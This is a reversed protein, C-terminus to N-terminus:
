TCQNKDSSDSLKIFWMHMICAINERLEESLFSLLKNVYQLVCRSFGHRKKNM